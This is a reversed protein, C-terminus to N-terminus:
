RQLFENLDRDQLSNVWSDAQGKEARQRVEAIINDIAKSHSGEKLATIREDYSPGGDAAAAYREMRFSPMRRNMYSVLNDRGILRASMEDAFFQDQPMLQHGSTHFFEHGQIALYEAMIKDAGVKDLSTSSLLVTAYQLNNDIAGDDDKVGGAGGTATHRRHSASSHPAFVHETKTGTLANLREVLGETASALAPFIDGERQQVYEPVIPVVFITGTKFQGGKINKLEANVATNIIEDRPDTHIYDM